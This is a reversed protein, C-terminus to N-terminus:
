CLEPGRQTPPAYEPDLAYEQEADGRDAISWLAHIMDEDHVMASGNEEIWQERVVELPNEFRMLYEAQQATVTKPLLDLVLATAAVEEAKGILESPTLKLWGIVMNAYNKGLKKQFADHVEEKIM